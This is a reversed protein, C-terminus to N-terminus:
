HSLITYPLVHFSTIRSLLSTSCLGYDIVSPKEKRNVPYRTPVGWRDGPSRGNLIRMQLNKCVNLILKGHTDTPSSDDNNRRPSPTDLVYGKIDKIPSHTEYEELIFDEDTSTRGNLDGMIIQHNGHLTMLIELRNYVTRVKTTHHTQPPLM